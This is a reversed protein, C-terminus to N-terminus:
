PFFFPNWSFFALYTPGYSANKEPRRDVLSLLHVMNDAGARGFMTNGHSLYNHKHKHRTLLKQGSLKLVQVPM